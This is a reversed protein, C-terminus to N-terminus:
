VIIDFTSCVPLGSQSPLDPLDLSRSIFALKLRAQATSARQLQDFREQTPPMRPENCTNPAQTSIM